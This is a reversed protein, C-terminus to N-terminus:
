KNREIERAYQKEKLSERKDYLKKGKCVGLEVKLLSGSFYLSLPIVTVGELKQRQSLKLIEKKNLLLKRSRYPDKNFINGEKYAAIHMGKIFVEQHNFSVFSDKINVQGKRISKIETGTLVIGAEIKDLVFYDHYAKKNTTVIDM